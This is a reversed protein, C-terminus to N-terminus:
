GGVSTGARPLQRRRALELTMEKAKQPTMKAMIPALKREKMLEAVALLTDLDMEEFIRAADKPKMAEYIKRLRTMKANQEDEHKKLLKEITAQLIKMEQVKKDIKKEAADLLAAQERIVAERADLKKSRVALKQLLDIETLTLLTPDDTVPRTPAPEAAEQEGSEERDTGGGFGGLRKTGPEKESKGTQAEAEAVSIVGNMIGDFGDMIDGVKVTLMLSVAFITAPLVCFGSALKAFM